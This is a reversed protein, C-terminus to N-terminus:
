KPIKKLQMKESEFFRKEKGHLLRDCNGLTTEIRKLKVEDFKQMQENAKELEEVFSKNASNNLLIFTALGLLANVIFSYITAMAALMRKTQFRRAAYTYSEQEILNLYEFAENTKNYLDILQNCRNVLGQFKYFTSNDLDIVESFLDFSDIDLKNVMDFLRQERSELPDKSKAYELIDEM